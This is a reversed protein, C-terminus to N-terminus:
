LSTDIYYTTARGVKHDKYGEFSKHADTIDKATGCDECYLYSSERFGNRVLLGGSRGTNATYERLTKAIGTSGDNVIYKSITGNDEQAVIRLAAFDEGFEGPYFSWELLLMPKGVLRAKAGDTKLLTFGDGLVTGAEELGGFVAGALEIADQFSSINRLDATDYKVSLVVDTGTGTALQEAYEQTTATDEAPSDVTTENRKRAPM